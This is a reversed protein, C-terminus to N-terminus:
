EDLIRFWGGRFSLYGSVVTGNDTHTFTHAGDFVGNFEFAVMGLFFFSGSEILRLALTLDPTATKAGYLIM